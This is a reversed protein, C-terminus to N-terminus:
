VNSFNENFPRDPCFIYPHMRPRFNKRNRFIDLNLSLARQFKQFSGNNVFKRIFTINSSAQPLMFDIADTGTPGLQDKPPREPYSSNDVGCLPNERMLLSEQVDNSIMSAKGNCHTPDGKKQFELSFSNM